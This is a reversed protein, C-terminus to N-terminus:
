PPLSSMAAGATVDAFCAVIGYSFLSWYIRQFIAKNPLRHDVCLACVLGNSYLTIFFTWILTEDELLGKVPDAIGLSDAAKAGWVAKLALLSSFSLQWTLAAVRVLRSLPLAHTALFRWQNIFGLLFISLFWIFWFYGFLFSSSVRPHVRGEENSWM